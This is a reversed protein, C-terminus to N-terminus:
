WDGVTAGDFRLGALSLLPELASPLRKRRAAIWM